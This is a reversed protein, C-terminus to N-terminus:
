TSPDQQRECGVDFSFVVRNRDDRGALYPECEPIAFLWNGAKTSFTSPLQEGAMDLCAQYADQALNRAATIDPYDSQVTSPATSRSDVRYRPRRIYTVGQTLAPAPSRLETVFLATGTSEDPMVDALISVGFTKGTRTSLWGCFEYLHQVGMNTGPM